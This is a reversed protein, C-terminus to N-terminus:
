QAGCSRLLRCLLLSSTFFLLLSSSFFPLLSSPFSLLLCSPFSGRNGPLRAFDFQCCVKPEPGCTHPIDYSYFPMVHTRVDRNSRDGGVVCPCRISLSLPVSHSSDSIHCALLIVGVVQVHLSNRGLVYLILLGWLQRWMFELNKDQALKKKVSYHVRQFCPRNLTKFFVTMWGMILQMWCAQIPITFDFFLLCALRFSLTLFTPRLSFFLCLPLSVSLTSRGTLVLSISQLYLLYMMVVVVCSSFFIIFCDSLARIRM